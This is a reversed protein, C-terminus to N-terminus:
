CSLHWNRTKTSILPLTTRDESTSLRRGLTSIALDADVADCDDAYTWCSTPQTKPPASANDSSTAVASTSQRRPRRPRRRAATVLAVAAAAAAPARDVDVNRRNPPYAVDTVRSSLAVSVDVPFVVDLPMEDNLLQLTLAAPPASL